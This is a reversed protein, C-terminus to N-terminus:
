PYLTERWNENFPNKNFRDEISLFTVSTWTVVFPWMQGVVNWPSIWGIYVGFCDAINRGCWFLPPWISPALGLCCWSSQVWKFSLGLFMLPPAYGIYHIPRHARFWSLKWRRRCEIFNLAIGIRVNPMICPMWPGHKPCDPVMFPGDLIMHLCNPIMYARDSVMLICESCHPSWWHDHLCNIIYCHISIFTLTLTFIPITEIRLTQGYFTSFQSFTLTFRYASMKDDYNNRWVGFASREVREADPRRPTLTRRRAYNKRQCKLMTIGVDSSSLRREVREADPRRSTPTRRRAYNKNQCKLM